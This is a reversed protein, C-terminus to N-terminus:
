LKNKRRRNQKMMIIGTYKKDRSCELSSWFYPLVLPFLIPSNNPIIEPHPEKKKPKAKAMSKITWIVNFIGM